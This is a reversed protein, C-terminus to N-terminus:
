NQGQAPLTVTSAIRCSMTWKVRLLHPPLISETRLAERCNSTLCISVADVGLM